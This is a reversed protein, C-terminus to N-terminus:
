PSAAYIVPLPINRINSRIPIVAPKEQWRENSVINAPITDIKPFSDTHMVEGGSTYRFPQQIVADNHENKRKCGCIALFIFLMLILKVGYGSSYFNTLLSM